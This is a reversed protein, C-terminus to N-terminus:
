KKGKKHCKKNVPTEIVLKPTWKYLHVRNLYTTYNMGIRKLVDALPEGNYFEKPNEM